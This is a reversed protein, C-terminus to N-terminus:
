QVSSRSLREECGVAAVDLDVCGVVGAMWGEWRIRWEWVEGIWRECCRSRQMRMVLGEACLAIPKGDVPAGRRVM